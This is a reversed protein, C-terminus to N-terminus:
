QPPLNCATPAFHVMLPKWSEHPSLTPRSARPTHEAGNPPLSTPVPPAPGTTEASWKRIEHASHCDYPGLEVAGPRVNATRPRDNVPPRSFLPGTSREELKAPRRPADSHPFSPTLSAPRFPPAFTWPRLDSAPVPRPAPNLTDPNLLDPTPLLRARRRNSPSGLADAAESVGKVRLKV